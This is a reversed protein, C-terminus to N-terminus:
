TIAPHRRGIIAPSGPEWDIKGEGHLRNLHDAAHIAEKLSLYGYWRKSLSTPVAALSTVGTRFTGAIIYMKSEPHVVNSADVFFPLLDPSRQKPWVVLIEAM